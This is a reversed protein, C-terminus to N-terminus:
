RVRCDLPRRAAGSVKANAAVLMLWHRSNM